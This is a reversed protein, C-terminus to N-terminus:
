GVSALGLPSGLESSSNRPAFSSSSTLWWSLENGVGEIDEVGFMMNFADYVVTWLPSIYFPTHQGQDDDWILKFAENVKEEKEQAKRIAAIFDKFQERTPIM